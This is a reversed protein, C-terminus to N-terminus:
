VQWFTHQSMKSMVCTISFWFNTLIKSIWNRKNKDLLNPWIACQASSDRVEQAALLPLNQFLCRLWGFSDMHNRDSRWLSLVVALSWYLVLGSNIRAISRDIPFMLLSPRASPTHRRGFMQYFIIFLTPRTYQLYMFTTSRQIYGHWFYRVTAM